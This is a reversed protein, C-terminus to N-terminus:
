CPPSQWSEPGVVAPPACPALAIEASGSHVKPSLLAGVSPDTVDIRDWQSLCDGNLVRKFRPVIVHKGGYWFSTNCCFLFRLSPSIRRLLGDSCNDLGNAGSSIRLGPRFSSTTPAPAMSRHLSYTQALGNGM